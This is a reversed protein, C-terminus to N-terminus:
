PKLNKSACTPKLAPSWTLYPLSWKTQFWTQIYRRVDPVSICAFPFYNMLAQNNNFFFFFIPLELLWLVVAALVDRLFHIKKTKKFTM